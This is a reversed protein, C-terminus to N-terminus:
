KISYLHYFQQFPLINMEECYDYHAPREGLYNKKAFEKFLSYTYSRNTINGHFLVIDKSLDLSIENALASVYYLADEAERADYSNQFEIGDKGISVCDIKEKHFNLILKKDINNQHEKHLCEYLYSSYHKIKPSSFKAELVNLAKRPIPYINYSELHNLEDLKMSESNSNYNHTLQYIKAIKRKDVLETPVLSNKRYDIAINVKSFSSKLIDEKKLYEELDDSLFNTRGESEYSKLYQVKGDKDILCFSLEKESLYLNLLYTGWRQNALGINRITQKPDLM